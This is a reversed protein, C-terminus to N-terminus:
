KGKSRKEKIENGNKHAAFEKQNEGTSSEVISPFSTSKLVTKTTDCNRMWCTM